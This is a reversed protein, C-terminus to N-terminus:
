YDFKVFFILEFCSFDSKFINNLQNESAPQPPPPESEGSSLKGYIWLTGLNWTNKNQELTTRIKITTRWFYGDKADWCAPKQFCVPVSCWTVMGIKDWSAAVFASFVPTEVAFGRLRRQYPMKLIGM